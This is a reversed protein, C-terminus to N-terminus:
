CIEFTAEIELQSFDVAFEEFVGDNVGVGVWFDVAYDDIVGDKSRTLILVELLDHGDVLVDLAEGM